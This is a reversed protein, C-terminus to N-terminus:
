PEGTRDRTHRRRWRSVKFEYWADFTHFTLKDDSELNEDVSQDPDIYIITPPLTRLDYAFYDGCGNSAFAVLFAPWRNPSTALHIWENTDLLRLLEYPSEALLFDCAEHIPDSPDSLAARHRPPFKIHLRSEIEDIDM